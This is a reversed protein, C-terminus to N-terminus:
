PFNAMPAGRVAGMRALPLVRVTFSRVQQVQWSKVASSKRAAQALPACLTLVQKLVKPHRGWHLLHM